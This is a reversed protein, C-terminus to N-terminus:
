VGVGVLVNVGVLDVLVESVKVGVGVLVNVGVGVLVLPNVGVGVLVGVLVLVNVGVGVLVNVGVFDVLIKNVRVGVGVLVNVGVGLVDIETENHSIIATAFIVPTIYLYSKTELVIVWSGTFPLCDDGDSIATLSFKKNVICDLVIRLNWIVLFGHAAVFGVSKTNGVPVKAVLLLPKNANFSM